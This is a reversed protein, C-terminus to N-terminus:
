QPFWSFRGHAFIVGFLVKMTLLVLFAVMAFLKGALVVFHKRGGDLRDVAVLHRASVIGARASTSLFVLLAAAPIWSRDPSAVSQGFRGKEAWENNGRSTMRAFADNGRVRSDLGDIEPSGSARSHRAPGSRRAQAPTVVTGGPAASEDCDSPTEM